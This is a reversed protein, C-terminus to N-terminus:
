QGWRKLIERVSAAYGSGFLNLHVLLYYLQYVELRKEFGSELPWAEEYATYFAPDFGGFLRSMALDMERHAFAAAPDILVPQGAPDCLFNGSWLDGHTLAPPEQPCLWALKQCLHDLQQEASKDLHGQELALLMQPWLREEAYFAAWAPHRTNSQPLSGIFNDHAFGFRESTNGHLNALARGFTEWFLRNKYGPAIYELILYAHGDPTSGHGSIKPTRIARSAGLLALGQAETKFMAAAQAATNTKVFWERGDAARLHYARHIDGGTLPKASVLRIGLVSELHTFLAPPLM